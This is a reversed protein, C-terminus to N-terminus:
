FYAYLPGVVTMCHFTLKTSPRSHILDDARKTRWTDGSEVLWETHYPWGLMLMM